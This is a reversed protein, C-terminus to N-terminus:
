VGDNDGLFLVIARKDIWKKPVHIVGSSKGDKVDFTGFDSVETSFTGEFKM